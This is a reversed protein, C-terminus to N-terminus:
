SAATENMNSAYEIRPGKLAIGKAQQMRRDAQPYPRTM